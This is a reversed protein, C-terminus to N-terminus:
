RRLEISSNTAAFVDICCAADSVLRSPLGSTTEGGVGPVGSVPLRLLVIMQSYSDPYPRSENLARVPAARGISACLRSSV